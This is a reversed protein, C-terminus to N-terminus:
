GQDGGAQPWEAVDAVPRRPARAPMPLGYGIRLIMQPQEAGSRPDRVLWAEATELPITLPCV